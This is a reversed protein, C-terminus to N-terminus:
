NCKFHAGELSYVYRKTKCNFKVTVYDHNLSDHTFPNTVVGNSANLYKHNVLVQIELKSNSLSQGYISSVSKLSGSNRDSESCSDTLVVDYRYDSFYTKIATLINDKLSQCSDERNKQIFLNVNPIVFAMVMSLIVIAALVEVLTFGNRNLKM